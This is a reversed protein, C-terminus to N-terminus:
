VVIPIIYDHYQNFRSVVREREREGTDRILFLLVHDQALIPVMSSTIM